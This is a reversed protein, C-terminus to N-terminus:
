QRWGNLLLDTDIGDEDGSDLGHWRMVARAEAVSTVVAVIAGAKAWRDLALRQHASVNRRTEPRKVELKVARGAVVADVDPEGKASYPDGHVKRAHGNALGRLYKVVATSITSEKASM